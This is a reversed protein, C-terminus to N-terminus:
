RRSTRPLISKHFADNAADPSITQIMDNYQVITM